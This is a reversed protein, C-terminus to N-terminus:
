GHSRSSTIEGTNFGLWHMRGLYRAHEVKLCRDMVVDLGGRVAIKAGEPYYTSVYVLDPHGALAEAVRAQYYTAEVKDTLEKISIRAIAVGDKAQDEGIRLTGGIQSANM